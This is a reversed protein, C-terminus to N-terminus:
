AYSQRPTTFTRLRTSQEPFLQLAGGEGGGGEGGEEGGGEGGEGGGEGLGTLVPVMGQTSWVEQPVAQQPLLLGVQTLTPERDNLVM